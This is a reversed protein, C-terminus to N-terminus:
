IKTSVKKISSMKDLREDYSKEIFINEQRPWRTYIFYKYQRIPDSIVIDPLLREFEPRFLSAVQGVLLPVSRRDLGSRRDILIDSNDSM